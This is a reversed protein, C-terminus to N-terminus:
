INIESNSMKKMAALQKEASDYAEQFEFVSMYKGKEKANDESQQIEQLNEVALLYAEDLESMVAYADLEKDYGVVEYIKGTEYAVLDPGVYRVKDGVKIM